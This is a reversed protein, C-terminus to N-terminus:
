ARKGSAVGVRSGKSKGVGKFQKLFLDLFSTM